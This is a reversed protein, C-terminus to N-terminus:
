CCRSRTPRALDRPRGRRRRPARRGLAMRSPRPSGGFALWLAALLSGVGSAAMLFGYGTADSGLTEQTLTPIVVGFNMGFTSVLGVVLVALLVLPTGRVYVFGKACTTSRGRRVLATPRHAAVPATRVRADGAPRHDGRPLQVRQDRVRGRRRGAGITLGAIAPGIIRAGNFMASNLAVANGIDERGVMEVAFSQRVPM